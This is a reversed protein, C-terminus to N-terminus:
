LLFQKKFGSKKRTFVSISCAVMKSMEWVTNGWITEERSYNGRKSYTGWRTLFSNLNENCLPSGLSSVIHFKWAKIFEFFFLQRPLYILFYPIEFICWLKQFIRKTKPASSYVTNGWITAAAVIRKQIWLLRLIEYLKRM